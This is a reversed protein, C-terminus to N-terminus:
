PTPTAPFYGAIDCVDFPSGTLKNVLKVDATLLPVGQREALAVYAADYASIDHLCAIALAREMLQASSVTPLDMAHLDRLDDMARGAQYEERKVRKWLINACEIFFLDPVALTVGDPDVLAERILQQVDESIDEEVFLKIGVSADLVLQINTM